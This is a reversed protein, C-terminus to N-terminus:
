FHGDQGKTEYSGKSKLSVFKNGNKDTFEGSHFEDDVFEGRLQYNPGSFLGRGQKLNNKFPGEYTGMKDELSGNGDRFGQRSLHGIYIDGNQYKYQIKRLTTPVGNKFAGLIFDGNKM